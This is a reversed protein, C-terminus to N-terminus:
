IIVASTLVYSKAPELCHTRGEQETGFNFGCDSDLTEVSNDGDPDAMRGDRLGVLRVACGLHELVHLVVVGEERLDGGPEPRVGLLWRGVLREEEDVDEALARRRVVERVVVPPHSLVEERTPECAGEGSMGDESACHCTNCLRCSATAHGRAGEKGERLTVAARVCALEVELGRQGERAAPIDGARVVRAGARVPEGQLVTVRFTGM